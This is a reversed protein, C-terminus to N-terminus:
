LHIWYSDVVSSLPQRVIHFVACWTCFYILESPEMVLVSALVVPRLWAHTSADKKLLSADKQSTRPHSPKISSVQEAGDIDLSDNPILMSACTHWNLLFYLWQVTDSFVPDLAWKEGECMRHHKQVRVDNKPHHVTGLVM